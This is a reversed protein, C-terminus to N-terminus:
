RQLGRRLLSIADNVNWAARAGVASPSPFARWRPLNLSTIAPWGLSANTFVDTYKTNFVEGDAALQGAKLSFVDHAWRKEFRIEYLLTTPLAEIGSVVM